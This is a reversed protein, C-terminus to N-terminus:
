KKLLFKLASAEGTKVLKQAVTKSNVTTTLEDQNQVDASNFSLSLLVAFLVPIILMIFPSVSTTIKKM